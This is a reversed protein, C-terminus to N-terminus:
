GIPRFDYSSLIQQARASFLFDVFADASPNDDVAAVPYNALPAPSIQIYELLQGGTGGSSSGATSDSDGGSTDGATGGGANTDEGDTDGAKADRDDANGDDTRQTSALDSKYVLGADVEGLILKALVARVNAEYTSPRLSVGAQSAAEATLSGCPVGPDCVALIIDAASDSQGEGAQQPQDQSAQQPLDGLGSVGYPNGAAVALVLENRTFIQPARWRDSSIEELLATMVVENASAFVDAPAGAMIQTALQSSGAFQLRVEVEPHQSEFAQAIEEFVDTLSSAAFVTLTAGRASGAGCSSLLWGALALAIV